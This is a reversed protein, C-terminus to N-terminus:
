GQDYQVNQRIGFMDIRSIPGPWYDIGVQRYRQAALKLQGNVDVGGIWLSASFMSTQTTNGPIYYEARDFNWWMDGGTNIRARVNNIELFAFGGGASCGAAASKLKKVESEPQKEAYNGKVFFFMCVSVLLIRLIYNM